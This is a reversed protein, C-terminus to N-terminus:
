EEDNLFERKPYPNARIEKILSKTVANKVFTLNILDVVESATFQESLDGEFWMFRIYASNSLLIESLLQLKLWDKVYHSIVSHESEKSMFLGELKTVETIIEVTEEIGKLSLDELERVDDLIKTVVSSTLSGIAQSWASHPLVGKWLEAQNRVHSIVAKISEM